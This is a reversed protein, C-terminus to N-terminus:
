STFHTLELERAAGNLVQYGIHFINKDTFDQIIRILETNQTFEAILICGTIACDKLQIDGVCTGEDKTHCLRVLILFEFLIRLGKM